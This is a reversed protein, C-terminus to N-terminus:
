NSSCRTRPPKPVPALSPWVTPPLGGCSRNSKGLAEILAPTSTGEEDIAGLAAAAIWDNASDDTVARMLAPVAAKAAHGFAELASIANSRVYDDENELAAVLFEVAQPKGIKGLAEAAHAQVHSEEDRALVEALAPIAPAAAAGIEGLSDIVNCRTTWEQSKLALILAGVAPAAWPGMKKLQEAAEYRENEDDSALAAVFLAIAADAEQGIQWIARAADRRTQGDGRSMVAKLALLAAKAAPGIGALTAMAFYRLDSTPQAVTHRTDEPKATESTSLCRSLADVAAAAKAGYASLSRAAVAQVRPDAHNLLEALRGIATGPRDFWAFKESASWPVREDNEVLAQLLLGV